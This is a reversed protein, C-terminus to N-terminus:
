CNKAGIFIPIEYTQLNFAGPKTNEVNTALLKLSHDHQTAGTVSTTQHSVRCTRTVWSDSEPWPQHITKEVVSFRFIDGVFQLGFTKFSYISIKIAVGWPLKIKQNKWVLSDFIIYRNEIKALTGVSFFVCLHRLPIKNSM